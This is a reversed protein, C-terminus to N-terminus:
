GAAVRPAEHATVRELASEMIARILSIYEIGTQTCLIPLDSHQPHLGALPNIEIFHIRGDADARVDVRSADLCGLGVHAALAVMKAEEAIPGEGRRYEIRQECEEKNVYSYVDKEATALFIIEMAGVARAASGTGLIGVTFERGSLFTEVLVPQKYVNLLYECRAALEERTRIKNAATIGKGTGEAMPKAFLPYPLRIGEVDRIKEVVAFDPTPIGLDRIVRKAMAKHLALSLVLTDSFTHPIGYAELLAPVQAERGIGRLGEAFNFVLDWRDGAVLRKALNRVHGIRDTEYGLLQLAGEVADITGPQDFEATEEEGYGEALYDLRLDYTIGVRM